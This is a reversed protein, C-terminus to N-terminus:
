FFSQVDHINNFNVLNSEIVKSFYGKRDNNFKLLSVISFAPINSIWLAIVDTNHKFCILIENVKTKSTIEIEGDTFENFVDIIQEYKKDDFHNMGGLNRQEMKRIQFKLTDNYSDTDFSFPPM